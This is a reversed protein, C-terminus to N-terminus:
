APALGRYVTRKVYGCSSLTYYDSLSSDIENKGDSIWCTMTTTLATQAVLRVSITRQQCNVVNYISTELRLFLVYNRDFLQRLDKAALRQSVEYVHNKPIPYLM